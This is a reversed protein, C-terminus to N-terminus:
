EQPESALLIEFVPILILMLDLFLLLRSADERTWVRDRQGHLVAHRNLARADQDSTAHGYYAGAFHLFSELAVGVLRLDKDSLDQANAGSKKAFDWAGAGPRLSELCINADQFVKNIQGVGKRLNETKLLKRCIHDLLPFIATICPYWYGNLYVARIEDLEQQHGSLIDTSKWRRFLKGCSLRVLKVMAEDIIKAAAPNVMADGASPRKLSVVWMRMYLWIVSPFAATWLWYKSASFSLVFFPFPWLFLERFFDSGVLILNVHSTPTYKSLSDYISRPFDKQPTYNTPKRAIKGRLVELNAVLEHPKITSSNLNRDM